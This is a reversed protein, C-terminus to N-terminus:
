KHQLIKLHKILGRLCNVVKDDVEREGDCELKHIPAKTSPSCSNRREQNSSCGKTPLNTAHNPNGCSDILHSLAPSSSFSVPNRRHLIHHTLNPRSQPFPSVRDKSSQAAAILCLSCCHWYFWWSNHTNPTSIFRQLCCRLCHLSLKVTLM